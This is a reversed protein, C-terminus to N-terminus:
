LRADQIVKKLDLYSKVTKWLLMLTSAALLSFLLWNQLRYLVYFWGLLGHLTAWIVSSNQLFSMAAAIAAGIGVLRSVVVSSVDKILRRRLADLVTSM